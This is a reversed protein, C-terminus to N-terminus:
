TLIRVQWEAGVILSTLTPHDWYRQDARDVILASVLGGLTPDATSGSGGDEIAAALVDDEFFQDTKQMAGEASALAFYGRVVCSLWKTQVPVRGMAAHYVVAFNAIEVLPPTPNSKPYPSVAYDGIAESLAPLNELAPKLANRIDLIGTM